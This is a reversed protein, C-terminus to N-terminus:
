KKAAAKEAAEAKIESPTKTTALRAMQAALANARHHEFQQEAQFTEMWLPYDARDIGSAAFVELTRSHLEHGTVNALDVACARANMAIKQALNPTPNPTEM